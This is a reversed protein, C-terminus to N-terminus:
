PDVAAPPVLGGYGHMLGRSYVLHLRGAADRVIRPSHHYRDAAEGSAVVSYDSDDRVSTTYRTSQMAAKNPLLGATRLEILETSVKAERGPTEYRHGVMGSGN